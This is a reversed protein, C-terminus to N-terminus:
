EGRIAKAIGHLADCAEHFCKVTCANAEAVVACWEREEQRVAAFAQAIGNALAVVDPYTDPENAIAIALARAREEDTM